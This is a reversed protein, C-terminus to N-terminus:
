TADKEGITKIVGRRELEFFCTATHQIDDLATHTQPYPTDSFLKAWLERLKPYKYGGYKPNGSIGVFEMTSRMTCISPKGELPNEGLTRYFEAGAVGLDFNANHCVIEDVGEVWTRFDKMVLKLSKGETLARETTIGHLASVSLPIEFGEPRIIFERSGVLETDRYVLWGLQVMRCWNDTNSPPANYDKPLGATETDFFLRYM